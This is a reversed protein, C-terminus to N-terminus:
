PEDGTLFKDLHGRLPHLAFPKAVLLFNDRKTTVVQEVNSLGHKVIASTLAQLAIQRQSSPDLSSILRRPDLGCTSRRPLGFSPGRRLGFSPGQRLGFGPGSGGRRCLLLKLRSEADLKPRWSCDRRWGVIKSPSELSQAM